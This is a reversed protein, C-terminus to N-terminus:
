LEDASPIGGLEGLAENIFKAKAGSYIRQAEPINRWNKGFKPNKALSAEFSPAATQEWLQAAKVRNTKDMMEFRKQMLGTRGAELRERSLRDAAKEGLIGQTQYAESMEKLLAQRAKTDQAQMAGYQEVGRAGGAGINALAYPSTGGMMGLGAALLAQNINDQKNGKLAEREARIEKIMENIGSVYGDKETKGAPAAATPKVNKPLPREGLTPDALKTPEKTEQKKQREAIAKDREQKTTLGLGRISSGIRELPSGFFSGFTSYISPENPDYPVEEGFGTYGGNDFAVIGGGALRMEPVPNSAIGVDTMDRPAESEAILAMNRDTITSPIGGAMRQQLARRNAEEQIIEAKRGMVISIEEPKIEKNKVMGMLVPYPFRALSDLSRKEDKVKNITELPSMISGLGAM